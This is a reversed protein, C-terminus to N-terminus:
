GESGYKYSVTLRGNKELRLLYVDRGGFHYTSAGGNPTENVSVTWLSHCPITVCSNYYLKIMWHLHHTKHICHMISSITPDIESFDEFPNSSSNGYFSTIEAHLLHSKCNVGLHILRPQAVVSVLLEAFLICLLVAGEGWHGVKRTCPETLICTQNTLSNM